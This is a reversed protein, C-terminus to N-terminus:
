PSGDADLLTRIDYYLESDDQEPSPGCTQCSPLRLVEHFSFEMTPLYIGLMKGVTFSAGTLTFNLAEFATMSALMAVLTAELPANSGMVHGEVLANKYRQYAPSDRMNMVLRAELCEYCASRHPVFTPGVLLMPGDLAAHIWPIRHHLSIRNFAKFEFPDIATAAFVVLHDRYQTFREATAEFDLDDLDHERLLRRVPDDIISVDLDDDPESPRRPDGPDRSRLVRVINECVDVDGILAVPAATRPMEQAVLGPVVYELYHDLAHGPRHEILDLESLQDLVRAVDGESILASEAIEKASRQGDLRTLIQALCESRNDDTLTVSVPNLVGQRLEVTNPGHAVVSLYRKLRPNAM